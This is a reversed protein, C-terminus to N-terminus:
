EVATGPTGAASTAKRALLWQRLYLAFVLSGFAGVILGAISAGHFRGARGTDSIGLSRSLKVSFDGQCVM